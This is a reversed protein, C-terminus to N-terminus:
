PAEEEVASQRGDGRWKLVVVPTQEDGNGHPNDLLARRSRRARERRAFRGAGQGEGSRQRRRGRLAVGAASRLRKRSVTRTARRLFSRASTRRCREPTATSRPSRKAWSKTSRAAGAACRGSSHAARRTSRSEVRGVRDIVLQMSEPQNVTALPGARRSLAYALRRRVFTNPRRRVRRARDRGRNRLHRRRRGRARHRAVADRSSRRRSRRRARVLPTRVPIAVLGAPVEPRTVLLRRRRSSVSAAGRRDGRAQVQALGQAARRRRPRRQERLWRAAERTRRSRCSRQSAPLGARRAGRALTPRLSAASWCSTSAAGRRARRRARAASAVRRRARGHQRARRDPAGRARRAFADLAAIM